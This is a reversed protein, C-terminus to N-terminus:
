SHMSSYRWEGIHRIPTGLQLVPVVKGKKKCDQVSNVSSLQDLVHSYKIRGQIKNVKLLEFYDTIPSNKPLL